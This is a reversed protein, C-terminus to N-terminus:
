RRKLWGFPLFAPVRRRYAEYEDGFKKALYDEEEWVLKKATVCMAVAVVLASWVDILVVLGPTIFVIWAAYIPHRCWAFVGDTCLRGAHFARMASNVGVLWFPVGVALMGVCVWVRVQFPMFSLEFRPGFALRLGGRWRSTYWRCCLLSPDM